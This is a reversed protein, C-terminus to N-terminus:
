IKQANLALLELIALAGSKSNTNNDIFCRYSILYLSDHPWTPWAQLRSDQIYKLSLLGLVTLMCFAAIPCVHREM